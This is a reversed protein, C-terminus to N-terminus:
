GPNQPKGRARRLQGRLRILNALRGKNLVDRGYRTHFRHTLLFRYSRRLWTVEDLTVGDRKEVEDKLLDNHRFFSLKGLSALDADCVIRELLNGPRQPMRTALICGSIKQLRQPSYAQKRLFQTAIQVSREEHGNASFLYGTDHFWSALTVIELDSQSLRSGEAIRHSAAVTNTTHELSHYLAWSPLRERFLETVFKEVLREIDTERSM